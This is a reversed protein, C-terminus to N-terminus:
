QEGIQTSFPSLAPKVMMLVSATAVDTNITKVTTWVIAWSHPTKYIDQFGNCNIAKSMCIQM